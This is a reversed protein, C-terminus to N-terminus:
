GLRRDFHLFCWCVATVVNYPVALASPVYFLASLAPASLVLEVFMAIGFSLACLVVWRRMYVPLWRSQERNHRWAASRQWLNGRGVDRFLWGYFFYRYWISSSSSAPALGIAKAATPLRTSLRNAGLNRPAVAPLAAKRWSKRRKRM